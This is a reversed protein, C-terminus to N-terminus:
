RSQSGGPLHRVLERALRLGGLARALAPWAKPQALVARVLGSPRDIDGKEAVLRRVEPQDLAAVIRDLDRGALSLFARRARLGFAIEPGLEGRWRAEYEALNDPGRAAVQGAIRAGVAGFLLGGGTLPKVQGAADGVLLVRGGVTKEPPGVPVLGSERSLVPAHPFRCSLFRALLARGDRRAPTLIGVRLLGDEAPVVWAFGGPAIERGLHVEVADEVATSAVVAQVGLVVEAPRPLGAWSRIASEAGDAGVLVDFGVTGATTRLIGDSFGTASAPSWVTAGAEAAQELLWRDLGARDLVYGKARDTRLEATRGGPTHIRVARVSRLVLRPPVSLLDLLTPGVLGTCRPPRNPSRELVLVKAGAAAATRAAVAGAPGGGVVVVDYREM